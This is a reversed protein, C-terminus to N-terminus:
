VKKHRGLLRDVVTLSLLREIRERDARAQAELAQVRSAREDAIAEWKEAEAKARVVLATLETRSAAAREKAPATGGTFLTEALDVQAQTFRYQKGHKGQVQEVDGFTGRRLHKRVWADSAGTIARLDAVTYGDM